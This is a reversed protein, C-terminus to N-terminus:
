NSEFKKNIIIVFIVGVVFLLPVLSLLTYESNDYGNDIVIDSVIRLVDGENLTPPTENNFPNIHSTNNEFSYLWPQGNTLLGSLSTISFEHSTILINNIYVDVSGIGDLEKIILFDTIDSYTVTYPPYPPPPGVPIEDIDTISLTAEYYTLDPTSSDVVSAIIPILGIGVALLIVIAIIKKM